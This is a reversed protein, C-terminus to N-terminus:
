VVIIGEGGNRCLTKIMNMLSARFKDDKYCYIFFNLSSNLTHLLNSITVVIDLWPPWSRIGYIEKYIEYINPVFKFSHCIIFVLIICVLVGAVAVDRRQRSTLSALRRTREKIALYIKTNLVILVVLPVVYSVVNTVAMTVQVYHRDKRLDTVDPYVIQITENYTENFAKVETAYCTKYEFFRNINFVISFLIVGTVAMKGAESFGVYHPHCVSVYREIAVALTSYISGTLAIQAMPLIYPIIYPAVGDKYENSLVPLCFVLLNFFICLFDFTMMTVLIQMFTPKLDMDRRFLVAIAMANGILGAIGVLGQAVGNVAFHYVDVFNDEDPETNNGGSTDNDWTFNDMLSLSGIQALTTNAM